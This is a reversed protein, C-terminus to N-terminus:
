PKKVRMRESLNRDTYYYVELLMRGAPTIKWVDFEFRRRKVLESITQKEILDLKAAKRLTSSMLAKGGDTYPFGLKVCLESFRLGDFTKCATLMRLGHKSALFKFANRIEPEPDEMGRGKSVSTSIKRADNLTKVYSQKAESGANSM